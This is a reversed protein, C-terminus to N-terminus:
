RSRSIYAGVLCLWWWHFTGKEAGKEAGVQSRYVLSVSEWSTLPLWGYLTPIDMLSLHNSVVIYPQSRDLTEEGLVEVRSPVLYMLGRGWLRGFWRSAYRPSFPVVLVVGFFNAATWLVLWPIYVLYKYFRYFIM